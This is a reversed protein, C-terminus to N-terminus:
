SRVVPLRCLAAYAAKYAAWADAAVGTDGACYMWFRRQDPTLGNWWAMGTAADALDRPPPPPVQTTAM